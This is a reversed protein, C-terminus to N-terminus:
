EMNTIVSYGPGLQPVGELDVQCPTDVVRAQPDDLHWDCEHLPLM